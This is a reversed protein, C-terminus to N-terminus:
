GSSHAPQRARSCCKMLQLNYAPYRYKPDDEHWERAQRKIMRYWGQTGEATVASTKTQVRKVLNQKIWSLGQGLERGCTQQWTKEEPQM